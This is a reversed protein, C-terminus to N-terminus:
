KDKTKDVQKDNKWETLPEKTRNTTRQNKNKLETQQEKTKDM